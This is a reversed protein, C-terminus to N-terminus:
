MHSLSRRRAPRLGMLQTGRYGLASVVYFLVDSVIKGALLGWVPDWIVWVDRVLVVGAMMLAPRWFLTDLVEAVGFEAVLLVTTRAVVRTLPGDGDLTRQERLVGVVLVGYFGVTAGLIAGAALLPPSDTVRVALHSAALMGLLCAVEAPGYRRVWFTWGM